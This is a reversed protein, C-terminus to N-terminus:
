KIRHAKLYYEQTVPSVVGKKNEVFARFGNHTKFITRGDKLTLVQERSEPNYAHLGKM